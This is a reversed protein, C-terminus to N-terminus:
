PEEPWFRNVVIAAMRLTEWQKELTVAHPELSLPNPNPVCLTFRNLPIYRNVEEIRACLDDLEEEVPYHSLVFGFTAQKERIFWLLRNKGCSAMDYDLFFAHIGKVAYHLESSAYFAVFLDSPADVLAANNVQISHAPVIQSFDDFQVYRCGSEYLEVLLRQYAIAIDELLMETDPYFLALEESNEAKLLEALLTSPAPLVQKALIDGGAVGTLFMFDDVVFHHHLELRGTLEFTTKKTPRLRVGEFGCIFDLLWSDTRFRGDTVVKLGFSKLQDVLTRIEADEIERLEIRTLAGNRLADRAEILVQPMLFVGAVDVKFPPLINEM